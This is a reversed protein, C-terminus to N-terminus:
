AGGNVVITEGNIWRSDNSALFAVVDALDDAQGIRKLPHARASRERADAPMGDTILDTDVMGPQVANVTIRRPALETAWIRTFADVAAKSGSYASLGAVRAMTATSSFNIIRGGDRLLPLIKQTTFFLGRTNLGFTQDFAEPTTTEVTPMGGSGRGANNVLIDVGSVTAGIEAVMRDIDSLNSVDAQVAFASGGAAKIQEVLSHAQDASRSYNVVIQAGDAALRLAVGRGIGRGAGTVVAIKGNLNGTM